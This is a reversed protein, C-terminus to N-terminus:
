AGLQLQQLQQQGFATLYFNGNAQRFILSKHELSQLTLKFARYGLGQCKSAQLITNLRTIIEEKKLSQQNFLIRIIKLELSNLKTM